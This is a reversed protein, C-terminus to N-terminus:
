HIKYYKSLQVKTMEYIYFVIINQPLVRFLEFNIGAYFGKLGQKKYTNTAINM